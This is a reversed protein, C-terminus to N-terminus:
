KPEAETVYVALKKKQIADSALSAAARTAYRGVRVKFYGGNEWVRPELGQAVVTKRLQEAEERTKYAGVQVTWQM